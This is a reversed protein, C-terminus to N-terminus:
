YLRMHADPIHQELSDYFENLLQARLLGRYTDAPAEMLKVQKGALLRGRTIARGVRRCFVDKENCRSVTYIVKEGNQMYGITAGGNSVVTVEGTKGTKHDRVHIYRVPVQM